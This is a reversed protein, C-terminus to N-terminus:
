SVPGLLSAARPRTAEHTRLAQVLLAAFEPEQLTSSGSIDCISHFVPSQRIFKTSRDKELLQLALNLQALLDGDTTSFPMRVDEHLKCVCNLRTNLTSDACPCLEDHHVAGHHDIVALPRNLLTEPSHYHEFLNLLYEEDTLIALNPPEFVPFCENENSDM